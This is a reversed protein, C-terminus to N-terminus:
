QSLEQARQARGINGAYAGTYGIGCSREYTSWACWNRGPGFIAFAARANNLPDILAFEGGFDKWHVSNIQWLGLDRTGNKNAPSLAAPDGSCLPRTPVTCDEAISIATAIVADQGRWGVALALQYREVDSVARGPTSIDIPLDPAIGDPGVVGNTGVTTGVAGMQGALWWQGFPQAFISQTIAAAEFVSFVLIGAIGYLVYRVIKDGFLFSVVAKVAFWIM